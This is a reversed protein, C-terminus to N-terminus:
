WSFKRQLLTSCYNLTLSLGLYLCAIASYMSLPNLERAIITRASGTIEMIGITSLISTSKLLQDGEGTLALVSNRLAQPLMIYRFAQYRTYGLVMATEWQGVPLANISGCIIHGVYAASCLGLTGIAAGTASISIGVIDPLVFYTLLLQVYIPIGRLVQTFTSLVKVYPSRPAFNSQLVGWVVGTCLAIILSGSFILITIMIGKILLPANVTLSSIM